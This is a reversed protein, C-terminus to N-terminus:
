RLTNCIHTMRERVEDERFSPFQPSRFLGLRKEVEGEWKSRPHLRVEACEARAESNFRFMADVAYKKNYMRCGGKYNSADEVHQNEHAIIQPLYEKSFQTTDMVVFPRNSASDCNAIAIAKSWIKKDTDVMVSDLKMFLVPYPRIYNVYKTNVCGCLGVLCTVIVLGLILYTRKMEEELTRTLCTLAWGLSMVVGGVFALLTAVLYLPLTILRSV